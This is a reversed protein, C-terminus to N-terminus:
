SGRRFLVREIQKWYLQWRSPAPRPLPRRFFADMERRRCEIVEDWFDSSPDSFDSQLNMLQDNRQVQSATLDEDPFARLDSSRFSVIPLSRLRRPVSGPILSRVEYVPRVKIVVLPVFHLYGIKRGASMLPLLFGNPYKRWFYCQQIVRLPAGERTGDGTSDLWIDTCAVTPVIKPFRKGSRIGILCKLFSGM